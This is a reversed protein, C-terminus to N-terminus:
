LSRPAIAGVHESTGCPRRRSSPARRVAPGIGALIGVATAVALALAVTSVSFVPSVSLASGGIYGAAIGVGLGLLGGIVSIM